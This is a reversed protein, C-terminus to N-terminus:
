HDTRAGDLQRDKVRARMPYSRREGHGVLYGEGIGLQSSNWADGLGTLEQELEMADMIVLEESTLQGIVALPADLRLAELTGSKWSPRRNSSTFLPSRITSARSSAIKHALPSRSAM